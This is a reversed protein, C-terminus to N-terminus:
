YDEDTQQAPPQPTPPPSDAMSATGSYEEFVDEADVGGLAEAQSVVEPSIDKLIDLFTKKSLRKARRLLLPLPSSPEHREFYQCVRDIARIADERSNIEGTPAPAAASGGSPSAAATENTPEPLAEVPTRGSVKAQLFKSISALEKALADLNCTDYSGVQETMAAEIAQTHELAESAAKAVESLGELEADAFISDIATLGLVEENSGEPIAIEGKALAIDRYSVSMGRPAVLPTKRLADLVSNHCLGNLTNARITPDNDDDPDLQPHLSAWYRDMFGHVIALGDRFSALGDEVLTAQALYVAARLDKSRALVGLSHTKVEKWEPEEAEIVTEGYQQEPKGQAAREMESFADDYELDPGSPLDPSVEALLTEVDLM